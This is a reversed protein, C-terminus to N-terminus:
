YIPKQIQALNYLLVQTSHNLTLPELNYIFIKKPIYDFMYCQDLM